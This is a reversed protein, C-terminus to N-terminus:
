KSENTQIYNSQLIQLLVSDGCRQAFTASEAMVFLSIILFQNYNPILFPINSAVIIFQSDYLGKSDDTRAKQSFPVISNVENHCLAVIQPLKSEKCDETNDDAYLRYSFPM